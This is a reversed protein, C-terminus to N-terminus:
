RRGSRRSQRRKGIRRQHRFLEHAAAAATSGARSAYAILVKKPIAEDADWTDAIGAVSAPLPPVQLGVSVLASAATAIGAKKFFERRELREDTQM